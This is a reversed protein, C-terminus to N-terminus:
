RIELKMKGGDNGMPRPIHTFTHNADARLGENKAYSNVNIQFISPIDMKEGRDTCLPTRDATSLHNNMAQAWGGAAQARFNSSQFTM